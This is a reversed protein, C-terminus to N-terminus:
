INKLKEKTHTERLYLAAIDGSLIIEQEGINGLIIKQQKALELFEVVPIKFIEYMGYRPYSSDANGINASTHVAGNEKGQGGHFESSDRLEQPSAQIGDKILHEEDSAHRILVVCDDEIHLKGQGAFTGDAVAEFPAQNYEASYEALKRLVNEPSTFKGELSELKENREFNM